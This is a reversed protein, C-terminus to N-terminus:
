GHVRDYQGGVLTAGALARKGDAKRKGRDLGSVIDAQDLSALKARESVPLAPPGIGVGEDLGDMGRAIELRPQRRELLFAHRQCDDIGGASPVAVVAAM